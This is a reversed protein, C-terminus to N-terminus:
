PTTPPVTTIKVKKAIYFIYTDTHYCEGVEDNMYEEGTAKHLYASPLDPYAKVCPNVKFSGASNIVSNSINGYNVFTSGIFTPDASKRTTANSSYCKSDLYINMTIGLAPAITIDAANDYRNEVAGTTPNVVKYQNSYDIFELTPYLGEYYCPDFVYKIKAPDTELALACTTQDVIENTLMLKKEGSKPDTLWRMGICRIEYDTTGLVSNLCYLMDKLSAGDYSAKYANEAAANDIYAKSALVSVGTAPDVTTAESPVVFSYAQVFYAYRTSQAIYSEVTECLMVARANQEKQKVSALVPQSFGIVGLILVALLACSVIVEVLTFGANNRKLLRRKIRKLM